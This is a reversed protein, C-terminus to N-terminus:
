NELIWLDNQGTLTKLELLRQEAEQKTQYKEYAIRFKKGTEDPIIEANNFGKKIFNNRTYEADDYDMTSAGIIYFSKPPNLIKSIDKDDYSLIKFEVRRNLQRGEETINTAVPKTFGYGKAILRKPEIGKQILYDIVAQARRKSLDINYEYSGIRDTHASIEVIATPNNILFQYLHDIEEISQSRLTAKDFDFYINRLIFSEGVKISEKKSMTDNTIEQNQLAMAEQMLFIDILIVSRPDDNLIEIKKFSSSYGPASAVVLYDKGYNLFVEGYGDDDTLLENHIDNSHADQIKIDAKVPIFSWADITRAILKMQNARSTIINMLYLDQDGFGKIDASSYFAYKEDPSPYYFVDNDPTNIPHGLNTPTRWFGDETLSTFFIDYGGMNEFGQSSFYLTVGDQLIFPADENYKTNIVPGVNEPELWGNEGLETKWIDLGGFGGPRNSTFYITKGDPSMTAHTERYPSNIVPFEKLASWNGNEYLESYHIDGNGKDGRYVFLMKGDYSLSVTAEHYRTNIDGPLKKAESWFLQNGNKELKSFYIDEYYKGDPALKGGTTGERRSTFYLISDKFNFVPSYEPYQTNISLGLNEVKVVAPINMLSQATYSKQRLWKVSDILDNNASKEIFLNYYDIAKNFEYKLHYLQALYIYVDIPAETTLYNDTYSLAVKHMAKEFYPESSLKDQSNFLCVGINYMLNANDPYKDEWKKLLSLAKDFANTSILLRADTYDSQYKKDKELNNSLNNQSMSLSCNIVILLSIFLFKVKM